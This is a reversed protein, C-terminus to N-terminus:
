DVKIAGYIRHVFTFTAWYGLVATVFFFILSILFMYGFYLLTSTADAMHLRTNFYFISYVFLYLGSAGPVLASNWWWKYNESCLQFYVLVISIEACTVALLAFVLLLFGFVYYYQDLWLSSLIFFLEVFVAGFPLLGGIGMAFSRSLYFPQEPIPRPLASVAVPFTVKDKKFGFYAGVFVLPVSILLWLAVVTFMSLFPIANSSGAHWVFLNLLFVVSFVLGPFGLAVLLTCVQYSRGDFMKHTRAATYGAVIGMFQFLLLLAVMLSGRNAPSLFGVAAFVVTFVSMLLIQTGVGVFAAFLLPAKTPPRFVDGHVLKWGTEEKDEAKEEDTAVRNYRSLDRHLVRVLIMAVLGTLFVAIILSNIIAFWHIEDSFRNGMSLYIDWRSAWQIESSEWTVDYSWIITADQKVKESHIFARPFKSKKFGQEPDCDALIINDKTSKPDEGVDISMPHVDFGVIRVGVYEPSWHYKVKMSAHNYLFFAKTDIEQGGVPFGHSYLVSGDTTIDTAAAPLGDLLWNVNYEAQIKEVFKKVDNVDYTMKGCRPLVSCYQNKLAFIQYPSNEITDGTLHEGLNEAAYTIKEPRCFPLDYNNYSLASMTSSLKNVKLEVKAGNVYETPAVGPLYFAAAGALLAALLLSRHM